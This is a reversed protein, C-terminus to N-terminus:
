RARFNARFCLVTTESVSLSGAMTPKQWSRKARRTSAPTSRSKQLSSSARAKVPVDVLSCDHSASALSTSVAQIVQPESPAIRIPALPTRCRGDVGTLAISM